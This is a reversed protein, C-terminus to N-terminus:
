LDAAASPQQTGAQGTKGAVGDASLKNVRQFEMVASLTKKGFQGDASGSLYNLSILAKQLTVVRSGSSGIRLSSYNGSFGQSSASSASSSSSSSSSSAASANAQATGAASSAKGAAKGM